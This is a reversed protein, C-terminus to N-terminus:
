IKYRSEPPPHPPPPPISKIEERFTHIDGFRGFYCMEGGNFKYNKMNWWDAVFQLILQSKNWTDRGINRCLKEALEASIYKKSMKVIQLVQRLLAFDTNDTPDSNRCVNILVNEMPKEILNCQVWDNLDNQFEPKDFVIIPASAMGSCNSCKNHWEPNGYYERCVGCKNTQRGSRLRM